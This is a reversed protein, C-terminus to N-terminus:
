LGTKHGLEPSMVTVYGSRKTYTSVSARKVTWFPTLLWVTLHWNGQEYVTVAFEEAMCLLVLEGM